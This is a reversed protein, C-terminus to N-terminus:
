TSAFLEGAERAIGSDLIASYLALRQAVLDPAGDLLVIQSQLGAIASRLATTMDALASSTVTATDELGLPFSGSTTNRLAIINNIAATLGSSIPM